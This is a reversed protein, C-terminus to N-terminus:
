TYSNYYYNAWILWRPWGPIKNQIIHWAKKVVIRSASAFVHFPLLDFAATHIM